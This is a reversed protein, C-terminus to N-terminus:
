RFSLLSCIALGVIVVITLRDLDGSLSRWENLRKM